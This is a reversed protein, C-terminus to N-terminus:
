DDKATDEQCAVTKSNARLIGYRGTKNALVALKAKM